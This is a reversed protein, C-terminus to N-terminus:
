LCPRISPPWESWPVIGLEPNPDEDLMTLYELLHGDPDRFYLAAAPMWGIVSPERTEAGFFSLPTIGHAELRNPAELLDNMTVEFAVHLTLGLPASGLSWLGLLSDGAEGVWFFAANREPVELALTLGVLDRYFSVSRQLDSVTLHSEFLRRIPVHPTM